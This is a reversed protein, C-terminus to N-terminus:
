RKTHGFAVCRGNRDLHITTTSKRPMVQQTYRPKSMTQTRGLPFMRYSYQNIVSTMVSTNQAHIKFYKNPRAHWFHLLDQGAIAEHKCLRTGILGRQRQRDICVVFHQQRCAFGQSFSQSVGLSAPDENSGKQPLSISIADNGQLPDSHLPAATGKTNRIPLGNQSERFAM